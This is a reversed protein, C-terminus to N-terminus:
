VLANTRSFLCVLEKNEANTRISIRDKIWDKGLYISATEDENIQFNIRSVFDDIQVTLPEEMIYWQKLFALDQNNWGLIKIV